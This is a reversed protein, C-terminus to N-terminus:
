ILAVHFRFYFFGSASLLVKRTPQNKKKLIGRFNNFKKKADNLRREGWLWDLLLDSIVLVTTVVHKKVSVSLELNTHVTNRAENRCTSAQSNLMTMVCVHLGKLACTKTNTFLVQSSITFCAMLIYDSLSFSAYFYFFLAM